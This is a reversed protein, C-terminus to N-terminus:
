SKLESKVINNYTGAHDAVAPKIFPQAPSGRTMHWDGHADQYAWPTDRGGGGTAHIGTGFEVYPAYEVNTGICVAKEAADVSHSISNRLRGTDVACLDKAYGEAQMGCRELARLCAAEFAELVADSNDTVKITLDSMPTVESEPISFRRM